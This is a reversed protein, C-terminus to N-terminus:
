VEYWQVVNELPERSRPYNNVSAEPVPYGIDIGMVFVKSEPIKLVERLVDPYVVVRFTPCAGLGYAHAVLCITQVMIGVDHILYPCLAREMYIIIANPAEHFRAGKILFNYRKEDLGETGPPFQYKDLTHRIEIARSYYPEPFQPEPIDPYGPVEDRCKEGLRDKLEDLVKGGLVAFEWCQTNAWSPVWQCIDLIEELVKRPVPDPKFDRISRRTRIAEIVEM